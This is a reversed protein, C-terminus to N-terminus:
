PLVRELTIPTESTISLVPYDYIFMKLLQECDAPPLNITNVFHTSETFIKQAEALLCLAADSSLHWGYAHEGAPRTNLMVDTMQALISKM